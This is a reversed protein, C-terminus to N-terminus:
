ISRGLQIAQREDKRYMLCSHKGCGLCMGRGDREWRRYSVVRESDKQENTKADFVLDEIEVWEKSEPLVELL